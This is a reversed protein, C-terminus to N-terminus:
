GYYGLAKLREMIISREGETLRGSLVPRNSAPDGIRVPQSKRFDKELAEELVKGDLGGPVPQGVLHLLTPTIDYVTAGSLRVGPAVDKGYLGVIGHLRHNGSHNIVVDSVVENSLFETAGRTIYAWDRMKVILDPADTQRPGQYLEERRYVRDVIPRGDQPDVVEGLLAAIKRCMSDYHAGPAVIGEPERGKLNIWVNGFLGAAYASTKSWDVTEFTKYRPDVDGAALQRDTGFAVPGNPFVSRQWDHTPDKAPPGAPPVFRRIKKPDFKLLGNKALVANLYVDKKLDGFGHDSVVILRAQQRDAMDMYQGLLEDMRRYVEFIADGDDGVAGPRARHEDTFRGWLAHQIRDAVIYVPFLIDVPRRRVLELVNRHRADLMAYVDDLFARTSGYWHSMVDIIYGDLQHELGPPYVGQALSPTHMGGVFFGEVPDPPYTLPVNVVGIRKRGGLIEWFAPAARDRATVLDFTYRGQARKGFDFIGHRGPNVGTIISAWAQPTLPHLTSKLRGFAGKQILRAFHPLHGERAWPEVLSPEAGDIGLLILEM